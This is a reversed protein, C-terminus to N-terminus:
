GTSFSVSGNESGHNPPFPCHCARTSVCRTLPEESMWGGRGRGSTELLFERGEEWGRGWGLTRAPWQARTSASAKRSAVTSPSGSSVEPSKSSFCCVCLVPFLESERAGPATSLECCINISCKGHTSFALARPQGSTKGHHVSLCFALGVAYVVEDEYGETEPMEGGQALFFSSRVEPVTPIM